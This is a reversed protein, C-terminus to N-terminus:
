GDLDTMSARRHDTAAHDPPRCSTVDVAMSGWM